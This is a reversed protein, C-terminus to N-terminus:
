NINFCDGPKIGIPGFLGRSGENVIKIKVCEKDCGFHSLGKNIAETVTKGKFEVKQM